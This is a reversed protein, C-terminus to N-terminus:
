VKYLESARGGQIVSFPVRIRAAPPEVSAGQPTPGDDAELTKDLQSARGAAGLVMDGIRDWIRRM